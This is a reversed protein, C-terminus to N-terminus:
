GIRRKQNHSPRHPSQHLNEARGGGSRSGYDLDRISIFLMYWDLRRESREWAFVDSGKNGDHRNRGDMAREQEKM